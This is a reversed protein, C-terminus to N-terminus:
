IYRLSKIWGQALVRKVDQFLQLENLTNMLYDEYLMSEFNMLRMKIFDKLGKDAGKIDIHLREDIWNGEPYYKKKGALGYEKILEPNNAYNMNTWICEAIEESIEDFTHTGKRVPDLLDKNVDGTPM